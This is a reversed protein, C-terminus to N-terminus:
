LAGAEKWVKYIKPGQVAFWDVMEENRAWAAQDVSSNDKLGSENFFAHVIEHRLCEKERAARKRASEDKWGDVTELRVIEITHLDPDCFGGFGDPMKRGDVRMVTYETGLINLKM